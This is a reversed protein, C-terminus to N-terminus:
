KENGGYTGCQDSGWKLWLSYLKDNRKRLDLYQGWCKLLRIILQTIFGTSLSLVYSLGCVVSKQKCWDFNRGEFYVYKVVSISCIVFRGIESAV